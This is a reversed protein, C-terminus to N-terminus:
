SVCFREQLQELGKKDTESVEVLTAYKFLNEETDNFTERTYFKFEYTNGVILSYDKSVQAIFPYGQFQRMTVNVFNEEPAQVINLVQYTRTFYCTNDKEHGCYEGQLIKEMNDFGIYLDHNGEITNCMIASINHNKYITTGGDYLTYKEMNNNETEMKFYNKLDYVSIQNHELSNHLDYLQYKRGMVQAAFVGVFYIKDRGNNITLKENIKDHKSAVLNISYIDIKPYKLIFYLFFSLVLLGLGTILTYKFIRKKKENITLTEILVKDLAEQNKRKEGCILEDVTVGLIQCLDQMLSIDPLTRGNEWRSISKSTINLKDALDEQTLNKEKRLNAIFKGIKGQDM